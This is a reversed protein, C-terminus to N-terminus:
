GERAAVALRDLGKDFDRGVLKDLNMLPGLLRMIMPRPGVMTWTVQTGGELPRLDLTTTNRSTFPKDFRLDIVVRSPEEAETVTMSGAGAKRNGSWAYHAGPGSEPGSYDRHLDPDLGEWPSWARWQRFGAVMPYVREPPAQVVRSRTVTFTSAMRETRCRAM